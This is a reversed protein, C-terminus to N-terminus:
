ASGVVFINVSKPRSVFEKYRRSIDLLGITETRRGPEINVVFHSVAEFVYFLGLGAGGEKDDVQDDGLGAGGEKDDVQDDGRRLCKALYQTITNPELSGFKDLVSIGVRRGDSILTVKAEEGADLNVQVTRSLQAFRRAGARDVPANYLANTVLEDCASCFLEAFRGQAGIALAFDRTESLINDRQESSKVVIERRTSGAAFYKDLGFVDGRLIKETTVLLEEADVDGDRALVNSLGHEGFLSALAKRDVKGTMLLVRGQARLTPFMALLQAANENGLTDANAVVLDFDGPRAAEITDATVIEQAVTRLVGVLAHQHPQDGDVILFRSV